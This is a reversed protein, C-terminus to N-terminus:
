LCDVTMEAVNSRAGIRVAYKGSSFVPYNRILQMGKGPGLMFNGSNTKNLQTIEDATLSRNWVMVEDITGGFNNEQYGSGGIGVNGINTVPSNSSGTTNDLVGDIYVYRNILADVVVVHHWNGDDVRSSSIVSGFGGEGCSCFRFFRLKGAYTSPFDEVILEYALYIGISVSKVIISGGTASTKIWAGITMAGPISLSSANGVNVGDNVDDFVLANGFRGQTLGSSANGTLNMNTLTGMNGMGSSDNTAASGNSQEFRWYGVLGHQDFNGFFPTNRVNVGNIYAVVIDDDTIDSVTGSNMIIVNIRNNYCQAGGPPITVIKETNSTVLRSFWTYSVNVIGVTVLMLMILSIAPTLGKM